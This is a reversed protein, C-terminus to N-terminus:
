FHSAFHTLHNEFDNDFNGFDDFDDYNDFNDFDDFDENILMTMTMISVLVRKILIM